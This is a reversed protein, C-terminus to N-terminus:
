ALKRLCSKGLLCKCFGLFFVARWVLERQISIPHNSIFGCDLVSLLLVWIQPVPWLLYFCTLLKMEKYCLFWNTVCPHSPSDFHRLGAHRTDSLICTWSNIELLPIEKRFYMYHEPWKHHALHFITFVQFASKRTTCFFGHYFGELFIQNVIYVHDDFNKPALCWMLQYFQIATNKHLVYARPITDSHKTQSLCSLLFDIPDRQLPMANASSGPWFQCHPHWFCPLYM